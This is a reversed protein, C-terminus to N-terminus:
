CAHKLKDQLEIIEEAANQKKSEWKTINRYLFEIKETMSKFIIENGERKANQKEFEYQRLELPAKDLKEGLEAYQKNLSRIKTLIESRKNM